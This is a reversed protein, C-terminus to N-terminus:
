EPSFSHTLLFPFPLLSSPSSPPLPPLLFPFFSSPSSPPLPLLLFPLFSSPSSLPFPPPLFPLFSSPPFSPSLFPLLSPLLLSPLFSLPFPPLSPFSSTLLLLPVHDTYSYANNFNKSWSDEEGLPRPRNRRGGPEGAGGRGTYSLQLTGPGGGVFVVWLWLTYRSVCLVCKM